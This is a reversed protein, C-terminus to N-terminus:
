SRRRFIADYFTCLVVMILINGVPSTFPEWWAKDEFIVLAGRLNEDALPGLLVAPVMPAVPFGFRCLVYGAIGASLMIYVDVFNLRVAFAGILCIPIIMPLIMTQPLSFLKVCPKILAFAMMYMLFNAVILGIYIFFILVPNETQITPGVVVNKLELAALIAAAAANGPIGLTLTPLMSGGVGRARASNQHDFFLIRHAQERRTGQAGFAALDQLRSGTLRGHLQHINDLLRDVQKDGVRHHGLHTARGQDLIHPVLFGIHRDDTDRPIGLFDEPVPEALVLIDMEQGLREGQGLKGALHFLYQVPHRM